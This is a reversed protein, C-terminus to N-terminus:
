VKLLIVFARFQVFDIWQNLIDGHDGKATAAVIKKVQATAEAFASDLLKHSSKTPSPAPEQAIIRAQFYENDNVNLCLRPIRRRSSREIGTLFENNISEAIIPEHEALHDRIASLLIATTALRQQGDSVELIDGTKPITVITGLFYSREGDAITKTFDRFLARVERKTWSYARQNIPVTIRHQKLVSGIGLQTFNIEPGASSM